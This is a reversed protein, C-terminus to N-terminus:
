KKRLLKAPSGAVICNAGVNKRVVSGIGVLSNNEIRIKEKVSCNPGMWVNEGIVVGGSLETCATLISNKGISCNHAIHVLNDTKVGSGIITNGLAGRCLSNLAGIEVDNEIVVNGLHPFRFWTGDIDQEFGFGPAGIVTNARIVCREGIISGAHIVVNHDIESDAGILVGPEIVVSNAIKASPHVYSDEYRFDLYDMEILFALAKCFDLRPKESVLLTEAGPMEPGIIVGSIDGDLKSKSFKLTNSTPSSLDGLSLLLQSPDGVIPLSLVKALEGALMEKKFFVTM